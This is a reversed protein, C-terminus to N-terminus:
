INGVPLSVKFITGKGIESEVSMKGNHRDIMEKCLLLGLGTGKEKATGKTSINSDLKFLKDINEKPIGIGNDSVSIEIDGNFEKSLIIICGGPNTFKIANSVLNYIVTRIMNKDAEIYVGIGIKNLLKINKASSHSELLELIYKIELFLDIKEPNFAMRGTQLLAWNLLNELLNFTNKLNKHINESFEVIQEKSLKDIESKLLETYGLLGVFPSKLDHAIISFFKDKSANLEKLQENAIGLKATREEVKKELLTQADRLEKETERLESTRLKVKQELKLYYIRNMYLKYLFYILLLLVTVSLFIFWWRQFYPKEITIVSSSIIKSWDGSINKASVSLRYDGPVLNTYRIKDIDDQDIEYWEADFGELKIKYHIFNENYFSIGRFNFYLSKYKNKINVDKNLSYKNGEADEAYNLIVNPTPVINYDYEPRYCTMGYETGIWINGKSDNILAARNIERGALGNGKSYIIEKNKGDWKIVGDDSGFWYNGINDQLIAYIAVDIKFGNEYYKEYNDNKLIYLGDKTGVFVKNNKDKFVAYVSNARENGIVSFSRVNNGTKWVLGEQTAIFVEDDKSFFIRRYFKKKIKLDAPEEFRDNKIIYIGDNSTVWIIGNKDVAVSNILNKKTFKIWKINGSKDLKGVGKSACALWITGDKGKCIGMVRSDGTYGSDTVSFNIKTTKGEGMLTIGENHGIIFKGPQNEFIATVEDELLGNASNFNMLYLNNLKDIGRTGTQWINEEKDIFISTSGDSKFGQKHTLPFLEGTIKNIYYTNYFNGFFILNNRGPVLSPYEFDNGTPLLFENNLIKLEDDQIYGIWRKGLLWMKRESNIIEKDFAVALIDPYKPALLKNLSNDFTNGDFVSLGGKTSIYFKNKYETISYIFDDLLGENKLFRKWVGNKFLYLGQYTGACVVPNNNDYIIGLSTVVLYGNDKRTEPLAITKMSDNEFYILSECMYNPLCWIVGKEDSKIKRYQSGPLGTKNNLNEWQFGDYISIGNATSFWMKGKLDQTVDTIINIPIGSEISYNRVFYSQCFTVKYILIFLLIVFVFYKSKEQLKM